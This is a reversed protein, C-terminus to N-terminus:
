RKWHNMTILNFKFIEEWFIVWITAKYNFPEPVKISCSMIHEPIPPTRKQLFCQLLSNGEFLLLVTNLYRIFSIFIAKEEMESHM